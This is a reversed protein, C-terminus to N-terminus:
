ISPGLLARTVTDVLVRKGFVAPVDGSDTIHFRLAKDRNRNRSQFLKLEPDPDLCFKAFNKVAFLTCEFDQRYINSAANSRLFDAAKKNSYGTGSGSASDSQKGTGTGSLCYTAAGANGIATGCCQRSILKELRELEGNIQLKGTM